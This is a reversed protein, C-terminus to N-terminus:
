LILKSVLKYPLNRSGRLGLGKRKHHVFNVFGDELFDTELIIRSANLVINELKELATLIPQLMLFVLIDLAPRM